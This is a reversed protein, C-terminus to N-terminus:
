MLTPHMYISTRSKRLAARDPAATEDAALEQVWQAEFLHPVIDSIPIKDLAARLYLVWQHRGLRSLPHEPDMAHINGRKM